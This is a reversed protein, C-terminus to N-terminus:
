KKLNYLIILIPQPQAAREARAGPNSVAQYGEREREREREGEREWVNM